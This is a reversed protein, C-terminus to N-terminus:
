KSTTHEKNFSGNSVQAKRYGCYLLGESDCWCFVLGSREVTLTWQTSAAVKNDLYCFKNTDGLDGVAGGEDMFVLVRIIYM